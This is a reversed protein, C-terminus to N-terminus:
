HINCCGVFWVTFTHGCVCVCVVRVGHPLIVVEYVVRVVHPLIVVEYVVRVVHPLIVVEYVM